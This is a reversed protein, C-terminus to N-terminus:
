TEEVGKDGGIRARTRNKGVPQARGCTVGVVGFFLCRPTVGIVSWNQGITVLKPWSQCVMVSSSWYRLELRVAVASLWAWIFLM